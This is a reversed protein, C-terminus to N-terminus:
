FTGPRRTRRRPYLRTHSRPYLRLPAPADPRWARYTLRIALYAVDVAVNYVYPQSPDPYYPDILVKPCLGFTGTDPSGIGAIVYDSSGILHRLQVDCSLDAWQGDTPLESFNYGSSYPNGQYDIMVMPWRYVPINTTSSDYAGDGYVDRTPDWSIYGPGNHPIDGGAGFPLRAKMVFRVDTVEAPGFAATAVAYPHSGDPDPDWLGFGLMTGGRGVRFAWGNSTAGSSPTKDFRIYSDTDDSVLTELGQGGIVSVRDETTEVYANHAPLDVTGYMYPM